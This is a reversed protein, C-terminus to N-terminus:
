RMSIPLYRSPLNSGHTWKGQADRTLHLDKGSLGAPSNAFEVKIQCNGDALTSVRLAIVYQSAYSEAAAIGGEGNQPCRNNQLVFEDVPAKLARAQALSATARARIAYDQYAPLAIAALIAVFPVSCAAVIAAVVWGSTKAGTPKAIRAAPSAPPPAAGVIILGLQAAVQQLPVWAPLGEHWVLTTASVSGNRFLDALVTATVPGQQQNQADAYYWDVVM